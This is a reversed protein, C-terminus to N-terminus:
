YCTPIHQSDFAFEQLLEMMLKSEKKFADSDFYKLVEVTSDDDTHLDRLEAANNAFLQKWERISAMNGGRSGEGHCASCRKLYYEQGKLNKTAYEGRIKQASLQSTFLTSLLAIAILLRFKNM